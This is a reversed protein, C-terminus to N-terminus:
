SHNGEQNDRKDGDNNQRQSSALNNSESPSPASSNGVTGSLTSLTNNSNTNGNDWKIKLLIPQGGEGTHERPFLTSALKLLLEMKEKKTTEPSTMLELAFDLLLGKLKAAKQRNAYDYPRGGKNGVANQNGILAM